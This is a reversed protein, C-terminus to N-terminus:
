EMRLRSALAYVMDTLLDVDKQKLDKLPTLIEKTQIEPTLTLSDSLLFDTSIDLANAIKVLTEVSLKKNGREIIGIYSSSVNCMEALKEQTLKKKLRQERVRAGLLLYDM